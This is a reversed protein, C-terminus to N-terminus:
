FPKAAIAYIIEYTAPISSGKGYEKRYREMMGLMV